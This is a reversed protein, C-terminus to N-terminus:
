YGRKQRDFNEKNKSVYLSYFKEKDIGIILALNFFLALILKMFEEVMNTDVEIKKYTKWYKYPVNNLMEGYLICLKSWYADIAPEHYAITIKTNLPYLDHMDYKEIKNVGLYLFVNMLFHWMDIVEYQIELEYKKELEVKDKQEAKDIAVKANKITDWMEFYETVFCSFHYISERIRKTADKTEPTTSKRKKGYMIQLDNQMGLMINLADHNFPISKYLQACKNDPNVKDNM